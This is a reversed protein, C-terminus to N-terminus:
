ALAYGAKVCAHIGGALPRAQKVGAKHLVRAALAASTEEPCDCYLVIERDRPLEAARKRISGVELGFAGPIRKGDITRVYDSRVDIVVPNCGTEM